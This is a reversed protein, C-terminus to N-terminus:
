ENAGELLMTVIDSIFLDREPKEALNYGTIAKSNEGSLFATQMISALSFAILQKQSEPINSRIALSFGLQTLASNSQPQYGRFDSLISIKVIAYNAYLFDFTQQAFSILREKDTLGDNEAYDKKDPSFRMLVKNIIRQVCISILNEKSEFHYNILGLAVGSKEAISRATITNIDGGSQEILETTATIIAEKVEEKNRM